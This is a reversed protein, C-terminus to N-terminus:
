RPSIILPTRRSRGQGVPVEGGKGLKRGQARLHPESRALKEPLFAVGARGPTAAWAHPVGSSETGFAHVVLRADGLQTLTPARAEKASRGAGAHALGHHDLTSLTEALGGRGFDLVHNNALVCVDPRAAAVCGAGWQTFGVNWGRGVDMGGSDISLYDAADTRGNSVGLQAFLLLALALFRGSRRLLIRISSVM